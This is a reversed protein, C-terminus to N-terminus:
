LWCNKCEILSILTRSTLLLLIKTRNLVVQPNDRRRGGSRKKKDKGGLNRRKEKRVSFIDQWHKLEEDGSVLLCM